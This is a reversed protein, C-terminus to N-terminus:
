YHRVEAATRIKQIVPEAAEPSDVNLPAGNNMYGLMRRYGAITSKQKSLSLLDIYSEVYEGVTYATLKSAREADALEQEHAAIFEGRWKRFADQARRGGINSSPDLDCPIDDFVCTKSRWPGDPTDRYRVRGQWVARAKHKYVSGNSYEAMTGGNMNWLPRTSCIHFM